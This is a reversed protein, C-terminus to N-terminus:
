GEFAFFLKKDGVNYAARGNIYRKQQGVHGDYFLVNTFDSHRWQIKNYLDDSGPSFLGNKADLVWANVSPTKAVVFAGTSRRIKGYVGHINGSPHLFLNVGYSLFETRELESSCTLVTSKGIPPRDALDSYGMGIFPRVQDAWSRGNGYQMPLFDRYSDVYFLLGTGIQKLNGKCHAARAKERAQNLAPLLMAALIAIIAIVILLEILTFSKNIFLNRSKQTGM